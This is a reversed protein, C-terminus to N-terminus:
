LECGGVREVGALDGAVLEAAAEVISRECDDVDQGFGREDLRVDRAREVKWRPGEEDQKDYNDNSQM